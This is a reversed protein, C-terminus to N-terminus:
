ERRKARLFAEMDLLGSASVYLIPTIKPQEPRVIRCISDIRAIHAFLALHGALLAAIRLELNRKVWAREILVVWALM